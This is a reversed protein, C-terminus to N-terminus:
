RPDHAPTLRPTIGGHIRGGHGLDDHSHHIHSHGYAGSEPNFRATTTQVVGGLGEIMARLVHDPLLRLFGDGVEMPVHRNGIHYAIAALKQAAPVTVEMVNEQAAIIQAIRGDSLALVDGHRLMTGPRLSIGIDAGCTSQVRLRSKERLDFTLEICVQPASKASFPTATLM